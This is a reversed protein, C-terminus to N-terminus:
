FGWTIGARPVLQSLFPVFQDRNAVDYFVEINYGFGQYHNSTYGLGLLFSSQTVPDQEFIIEGDLRYKDKGRNRGLEAQAYIGAPDGVHFLLFRSLLRGGFVNNIIVPTEGTPPNLVTSQQFFNFGVGVIWRDSVVRYGVFPTGGYVFQNAQVTGFFPDNIVGGGGRLTGFGGIVLKSTSFRRDGGVDDPDYVVVPEDDTKDEQAFATSTMALVALLCLCCWKSIQTM